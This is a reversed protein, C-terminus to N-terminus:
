YVPLYFLAFIPGDGGPDAQSIVAEIVITNRKSSSSVFSCKAGVQGKLQKRTTFAVAIPTEANPKCWTLRPRLVHFGGRWLTTRLHLLPLVGFDVRCVFQSFLFGQESRFGM